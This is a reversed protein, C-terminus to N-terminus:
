GPPVFGGNPANNESKQTAAADPKTLNPATQGAIPMPSYALHPVAAYGPPPMPQRRMEERRRREALVASIYAWGPTGLPPPPTVSSQVAAVLSAGLRERADPSLQNVRGLFQRCQLALADSLRTLDLTTAWGALPPPMPSVFGALHPVRAQLVLTGALVDGIRKGRNSVLMSVVGPLGLVPPLGDVLYRTLARVLAHRFRLPGGDDRTARLGMAAKGLTKGNWATELVAPYGIFVLVLLGVDLAAIAASELGLNSVIGLLFGAAVFEVVLDIVFAISRSGIRAVRLDIPVAEGGILPDYRIGGYPDGPAANM